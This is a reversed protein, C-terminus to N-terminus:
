QMSKGTSGQLTIMRRSQSVLRSEVASDSNVSQILPDRFPCFVPPLPPLPPPPPILFLLLLHLPIPLPPPLPPHPLPLLLSSLSSSSSCSSCSDPPLFPVSVSIVSASVCLWCHSPFIHARELTGPSEPPTTPHEAMHM